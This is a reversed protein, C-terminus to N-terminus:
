LLERRIRGRSGGQLVEVAVGNSRPKVSSGSVPQASGAGSPDTAAPILNRNAPDIPESIAQGTPGLRSLEPTSCRNQLGNTAPEFGAAPVLLKLVKSLAAFAARHAQPLKAPGWASPVGYSWWSPGHEM